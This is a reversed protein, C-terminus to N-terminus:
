LLIVIIQTTWYAIFMLVIEVLTHAGITNMIYGKYYKPKIASFM